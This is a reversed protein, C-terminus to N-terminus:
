LFTNNPKKIFSVFPAPEKEKEIQPNTQTMDKSGTEAAVSELNNENSSKDYSPQAETTKPKEVNEEPIDEEQIEGNKTNIDNNKTEDNEDPNIKDDSEDNKDGENLDDANDDNKDDDNDKNDDDNLKESDM